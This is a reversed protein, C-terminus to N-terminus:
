VVLATPPTAQQYAAGSLIYTIDALTAQSPDSLRVRVYPYGEGLEAADLEIVYFVNNNTSCVVGSAEAATLADLTDGSDTDEKRYRFAMATGAGAGDADKEVTITTAAGTVGLKVIATLHGYKAMGVYVGDLGTGNIDVPPGANVIKGVESLWLGKM